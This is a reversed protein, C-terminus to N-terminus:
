WRHRTAKLITASIWWGLIVLALGTMIFPRYKYWFAAKKTHDEEMDEGVRHVYPPDVLAKEREQSYSSATRRVAKEASHASTASKNTPESVDQM